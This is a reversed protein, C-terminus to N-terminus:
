LQAYLDVLERRWRRLEHLYHDKGAHLKIFGRLEETRWKIELRRLLAERELGSPTLRPKAKLTAPPKINVGKEPFRQATEYLM